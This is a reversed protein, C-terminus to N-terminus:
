LWDILLSGWVLGGGFADLLVKDGKEIRKDEWAECLAVATSASSMNGYKEINMYIRDLPFSLIKAVANIIRMNAQHPIIIKLDQPGLNAKGLSKEATKAMARSAIRFLENGKMKISHLRKEVTAESAPLRSGGAPMNLIEGRGGDAGFDSSLFSKEDSTTLVAAGAGDGFLVCTSRDKWDTISSLVEAGIVLANKYLGSELFAQASVLGYIYGACAASVDFCCAKKAGLLNQLHCATSPFRTDGTITAIIILDLDAAKIGSRELAIKAAEYALQSAGVGPEVIRRTKIGTRTVIWEDTTDVIKELDKNTLIKPPLYKGLGAIKAYKM